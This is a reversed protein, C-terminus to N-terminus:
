RNPTATSDQSAGSARDEDALSTSISARRCSTATNRRAFGLGRTDHVSRATRAQPRDRIRRPRQLRGGRRRPQHRHVVHRDDGDIPGYLRADRDRAPSSSPSPRQRHRDLWRLGVLRRNSAHHQSPVARPLRDGRGRGLLHADHLDGVLIGSRIGTTTSYEAVTNSRPGVVGVHDAGTHM